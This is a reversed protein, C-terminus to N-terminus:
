QAILINGEKEHLLPPFVRTQYFVPRLDILGGKSSCYSCQHICPYTFTTVINNLINKKDKANKPIPPSPLPVGTL